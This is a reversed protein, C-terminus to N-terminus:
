LMQHGVPVAVAVPVSVHVYVHVALLLLLVLDLTLLIRDWIMHVAVAPFNLLEFFLVLTHFFSILSVFCSFYLWLIIVLCLM